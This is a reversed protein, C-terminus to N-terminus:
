EEGALAEIDQYVIGKQSFDKILKAHKMSNLATYYAQLAERNTPDSVQVDQRWGFLHDAHRDVRMKITVKNRM